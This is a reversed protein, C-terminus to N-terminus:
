GASDTMYGWFTVRHKKDKHKNFLPFIEAYREALKTQMSDPLSETYPNVDPRNEFRVSVEAGQFDWPNPLVSIDLETIMVKLGLASVKLISEEIEQITPRTLSWHGQMGIGDIRIGKE